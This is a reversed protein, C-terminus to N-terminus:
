DIGAIEKPGFPYEPMEAIKYDVMVNM